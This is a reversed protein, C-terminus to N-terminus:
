EVSIRGEIQPAFSGLRAIAQQVIEDVGPGTDYANRGNDRLMTYGDGGTRM